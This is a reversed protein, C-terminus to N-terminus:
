PKTTLIKCIVSNIIIATYNIFRTSWQKDHVKLTAQNTDRGSKLRKIQVVLLQFTYGMLCFHRNKYDEGLRDGSPEFDISWM